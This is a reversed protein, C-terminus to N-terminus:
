KNEIGMYVKIVGLEELQKKLEEFDKKLGEIKGWAIIAFALGALGFIYGLSEM